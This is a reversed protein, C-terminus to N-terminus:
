GPPHPGGPHGPQPKQERVRHVHKVTPEVVERIAGLGGAAAGGAGRLRVWGRREMWGLALVLAAVAIACGGVLVAVKVQPTM